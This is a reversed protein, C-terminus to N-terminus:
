DPSAKRAALRAETLSARSWGTDLDRRSARRKRESERPLARGKEAGRATLGGISLSARGRGVGM